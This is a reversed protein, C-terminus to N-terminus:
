CLRTGDSRLLADNKIEFGLKQAVIGLPEKVYQFGTTLVIITNSGPPGFKGNEIAEVADPKILVPQGDPRTFLKFDVDIEGAALM